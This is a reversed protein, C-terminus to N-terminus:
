TSSEAIAELRPSQSFDDDDDDAAGRGSAFGSSIRSVSSARRLIAIPRPRAGGVAHAADM